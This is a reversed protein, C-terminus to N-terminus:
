QKERLEAIAAKLVPAEVYGRIVQEGIIFGPTGSIGIDNAKQLNTAVASGIDDKNAAEKLKIPDLGVETAFGSLIDETIPGKHEMIQKHFEAYSGQEHAALAWKAALTSSEHLIPIEIIVVRLDPDEAVLHSVVEYAKKCYGCNYDLFEVITTGANRNGLFPHRGEKYLFDENSELAEQAQKEAEPGGGQLHKSVTEFIIQPNNTVWREIATGQWLSIALFATVIINVVVLIWLIRTNNM